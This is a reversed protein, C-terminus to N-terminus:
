GKVFIDIIKEEWNILLDIKITKISSDTSVSSNYFDVMQNSNVRILGAKGARFLL